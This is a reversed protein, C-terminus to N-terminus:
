IKEIETTIDGNENRNKNIQISDRHGRTVRTLPKDIKNTRDFFSSIPKKQNKQKNKIQKSTQKNNQNKIYNKKEIHNLEARLKTIKQKRSM